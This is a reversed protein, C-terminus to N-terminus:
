PIIPVIGNESQFVDKLGETLFVQMKLDILVAQVSPFENAIQAGRNLGAAFIITSLADAQTSDDSVITVSCLDTECPYGTVPNLIHHQRKGTGDMFFRQYDGSTVVSKDIISLSGILEDDRRPHQIGIRWPSGDPKCGLAVVNGGLNSYASKIGLQRYVELIRNGAFGKGIGGLDLSQGKNKLYATNADSKLMLEQDNVLPLTMHIENKSPPTLSKEGSKWLDVLPGVTIQFYEPFHNSYSLAASLLEFTDESIAEPKVGASRNICSIESDPLFRSLKNELLQIERQILLICDEANEGFAKHSMVTGMAFHISEQDLKGDIFM